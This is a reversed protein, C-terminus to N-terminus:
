NLAKTSWQLINDIHFNIFQNSSVDCTTQFLIKYLSFHYREAHLFDYLFWTVLGVGDQVFCFLDFNQITTNFYFSLFMNYLVQKWKDNKIIINSMGVVFDARCRSLVEPYSQYYWVYLVRLMTDPFNKMLKIYETSPEKRTDCLKNAILKIFRLESIRKSCTVIAYINLAKDFNWRDHLM